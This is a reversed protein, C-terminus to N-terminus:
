ACPVVERDTPVYRNERSGDPLTVRLTEEDLLTVRTYVEPSVAENENVFFARVDADWGGFGRSFLDGETQEWTMGDFALLETSCHLFLVVRYVVGVELQDGYTRTSAYPITEVTSTSTCAALVLAVAIFSRFM